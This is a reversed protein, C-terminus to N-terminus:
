KRQQWGPIDDLGEAIFGTWRDGYDSEWSSSPTSTPNSSAPEDDEGDVDICIVQRASFGAQVKRASRESIATGHRPHKYVYTKRGGYMDGQGVKPSKTWGADLLDQDPSLKRKRGGSPRSASPGGSTGSAFPPQWPPMYPPISENICLAVRQSFRMPFAASETSAKGKVREEHRGSRMQAHRCWSSRDNKDCYHRDGGFEDILKQCNTWLNTAKQPGRELKCYTLRIKTAGLGGEDRQRELFDKVIPLHQMKGEPNEIMFLMAPNSVLASAIVDVLLYEVDLNAEYAEPTIGLFHNEESRAHTGQAMSSFTSCDPSAHLFDIQDPLHAREIQRLEKVVCKIEDRAFISDFEVRDIHRDHVIVDFEFSAHFEKALRATNACLEVMIPVRSLATTRSTPLPPIEPWQYQLSEKALDIPEQDCWTRAGNNLSNHTSGDSSRFHVSVGLRAGDDRQKAESPQVHWLCQPDVDREISGNKYRLALRAANCRGSVSIEFSRHEVMVFCHKAEFPWWLWIGDGVAPTRDLASGKTKQVPLM